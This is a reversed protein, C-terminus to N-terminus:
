DKFKLKNLNTKRINELKDNKNKHNFINNIFGYMELQQQGLIANFEEIITNVNYSTENKIIRSINLKHRYIDQINPIIIHQIYNLVNKYKLTDNHFTKCVLYVYGNSTNSTNPKFLYVNDYINSYIYLIDFIVKYIIYKIKIICSGQNMQCQTILVLCLLMHKIYNTDNNNNYSYEIKPLEIYLLSVKERYKKSIIFKDYLNDVEFHTNHFITNEYNDDILYHNKIITSLPENINKDNSITFVHQMINTPMTLAEIIPISNFIDTLDLYFNFHVFIYKYTIYYQMLDQDALYKLMEETDFTTSLTNYSAILDYNLKKIYEFLSYSVCPNNKGDKITLNFIISTDIKPITIYKM